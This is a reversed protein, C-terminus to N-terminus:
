EFNIAQIAKAPQILYGTKINDKTEKGTQSLLQYATKTDMNPNIAKMLGLLGAVYPTAMSTGSLAKYQGKPFISFIQVGPAAIGMEVEDIYNSFSARSLDEDIASVAIVNKSNAPSFGKASKNSNGAAVVVIAGAENAYRVAENYARQSLDNSPGGLSMSIVDAKEDAAKIIGDIVSKQSGFGSDSLVKVSTVTVFENNPSFSAIGKQNNSVAAAIGACHTGHGLKDYDSKADVSLYNAAIDEHDAEVGTDLIFIKAKKKPKINKEKILKYLADVEMVEFGWLKELDPDNIGYNPQRRQTKLKATQDEPVSLVENEELHDIANSNRLANKIEELESLRETPVDLTYYENLSTLHPNKIHPFALEMRLDYKTIIAKLAKQAEPTLKIDVLLEGDSALKHSVEQPDSNFYSVTAERAPDFFLVKVGAFVAFITFYFVRNRPAFRNLVLVVLTFIVLDPTLKGLLQYLLGGGDFFLSLLYVLASFFFGKSALGAKLQREKLYFWLAASFLLAVYSIPYWFETM